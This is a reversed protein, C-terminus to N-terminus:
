AGACREPQSRGPQFSRGPHPLDPRGGDGGRYPHPLRDPLAPRDVRIGGRRVQLGAGAAAGGGARQRQPRVRGQATATGLPRATPFPCPPQCTRSPQNPQPPTLRGDFTAELKWGGSPDDKSWPLKCLVWRLIPLREPPPVAQKRSRRRCCLLVVPRPHRHPAYPGLAM